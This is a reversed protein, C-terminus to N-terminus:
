NRSEADAMYDFPFEVQTDQRQLRINWTDVVDQLVRDIGYSQAFDVIDQLAFHYAMEEPQDRFSAM